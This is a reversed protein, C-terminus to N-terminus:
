VLSYQDAAIFRICFGLAGYVRSSKDASVTWRVTEVSLDEQPNARIEMRHLTSVMSIRASIGQRHRTAVSDYLSNWAHTSDNRRM